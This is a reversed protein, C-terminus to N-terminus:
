SDLVQRHDWMWRAPVQLEDGPAADTFSEGLCEIARSGAAPGAVRLGASLSVLAESQATSQVAAWATLSSPSIELLAKSPVFFVPSDLHQTTSHGEWEWESVPWRRCLCGLPGSVWVEAREHDTM